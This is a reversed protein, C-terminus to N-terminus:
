NINKSNNLKISKSINKTLFYGIFCISIFLIVISTIHLINKISFFIDYNNENINTIIDYEISSSDETYISKFDNYEKTKLKNSLSRSIEENKKYNTTRKFTEKDGSISKPKLIKKIKKNVLITDLKFYKIPSCEDGGSNSNKKDIIFIDNESVSYSRINQKDLSPFTVKKESKKEMDKKKMSSKKQNENNESENNEKNKFLESESNNELENKQNEVIESESNNKISKFKNESENDKEENKSSESNNEIKDNYQNKNNLQLYNNKKKLLHYNNNLSIISNADMICSESTKLNKKYQESNKIKEKFETKKFFSISKRERSENNFYEPNSYYM